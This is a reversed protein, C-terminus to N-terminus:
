VRPETGYSWLLSAAPYHVLYRPFGGFATTTDFAAFLACIAGLASSTLSCVAYFFIQPIPNLQEITDITHAAIFKRNSLSPLLCVLALRAFKGYM